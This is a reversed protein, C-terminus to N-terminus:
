VLVMPRQLGNVSEIQVIRLNFSFAERNCMNLTHDSIIIADNWPRGGLPVRLSRSRHYVLGHFSRLLLRGGRSDPAIQHRSYSGSFPRGSRRYRRFPGHGRTVLNRNAGHTAGNEHEHVVAQQTPPLTGSCEHM